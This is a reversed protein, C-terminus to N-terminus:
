PEASEMEIWFRSGRGLESEVGVRGGMREIGRRVIALGIGTGPYDEPRHLREFVRFIRERHEPPIGIGNDEVWLRVRGAGADARLVVRPHVGPAVFKVANSLLNRVVQSLLVPDARVRPFPGELRVDARAEGLEPAMQALLGSLFTGLPLDQLRLHARGMRTYELLDQILADLQASGETIRALYDRGEPDLREAYEERLVQGFGHMARLPARLDHAVSYAFAELEALATRLEGTREEVKKELEANLRLLRDEAERLRRAEERAERILAANELALAIRYALDEAFRMDDADYASEAALLSVVGLVRDQVRLPTALLSRPRFERLAERDAPSVGAEALTREDTFFLFLSQRTRVIREPLDGRLLREAAARRSVDRCGVAARELAGAANRVDILCVEAAHEAILGAVDGLTSRVDPSRSLILSAKALLLAHKEREARRAAEEELARRLRKEEDKEGTVDQCIGILRRLADGESLLQGKCRVRLVTGDPRVIRHYFDFARGERLAGEITRRVRLRDDPHIRALYAEYTAEFTGPREGFIEYLTESWFVADHEVDWEWSGLRAVKEARVLLDLSRRLRSETSRIPTVDQSVACLGVPRGTEDRVTSLLLAVELAKGDKGRLTGELYPLPEGRHYRSLIEEPDIGLSPSLLGFAPKGVAEEKSFGFLREAASNWLSIRGDPAIGFIALACSELVAEPRWPEAPREEGPFPAKRVDEV